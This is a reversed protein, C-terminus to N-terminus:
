TKSLVAKLRTVARQIDSGKALDWFISLFDPDDM